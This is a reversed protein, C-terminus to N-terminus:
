VLPRGARVRRRVDWLLLDFPFRRLAPPLARVVARVTWTLRAFRRRDRETWQLRMPARFEPPLFGTTAFRNFRGFLVAFPRPLFRLEAVDTLYRRVTEDFAVESLSAQWYEEFAARDAPWADERVQLTTGLTAASRYLREIDPIPGLFARHTDEFGRYLCAAVWLQLGPDLARYAVPSSPTSRVQAHVRNVAKRFAARDAPTGLTAVALYSYTTRARKLPHRHLQGSEVRSEVVGHGVGPRALQM